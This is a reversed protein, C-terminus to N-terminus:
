VRVSWRPPPRRAGIMHYRELNDSFITGEANYRLTYGVTNWWVARWVVVLSPVRYSCLTGEANYKEPFIGTLILCLAGVILIAKNFRHYSNQRHPMASIRQVLIVQPRPLPM